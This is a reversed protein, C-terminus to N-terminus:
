SIVEITFKLGAFKFAIARRARDVQLHLENTDAAAATKQEGVYRYVASRGNGIREIENRERMNTIQTSVKHYGRPGVQEAISPWEFLEKPSMPAPAAKLCSLMRERLLAADKLMTNREKGASM